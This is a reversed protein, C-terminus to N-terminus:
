LRVLGYACASLRRVALTSCGIGVSRFHPSVVFQWRAHFWNDVDFVGIGPSTLWM